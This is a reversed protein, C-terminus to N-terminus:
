REALNIVLRKPKKGTPDTLERMVENSYASEDGALDTATMVFYWTGITPLPIYGERDLSSVQWQDTYVGSSPGYYVTFHSIQEPPLEVGDVYFMPAIWALYATPVSIQTTARPLVLLGATVALGVLVTRIKM